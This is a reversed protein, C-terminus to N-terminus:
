GTIRPDDAFVDRPFELAQKPSECLAQAGTRSLRIRWTQRARIQTEPPFTRVFAACTLLALNMGKAPDRVSAYRIAQAEATRAADAFAQCASYDMRDTWIAQDASFPEATLDLARVTVVQAAFATYEAAGDPWPTDPSEAFFLLRYFAMEAVATATTEAAYYVGPTRGARRFRSGHPYVAGYRFPTALLFDLDRCEPPIAPKTEEILDELLAQEALTDTLKLTSVHHQAEVLRWCPGEYRRFESSLAVRTWIPSSM